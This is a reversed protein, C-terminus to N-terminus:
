SMLQVTIFIFTLVKNNIRLQESATGGQYNIFVRFAGFTGIGSLFALRVENYPELREEATFITEVFGFM